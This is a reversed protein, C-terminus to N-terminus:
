EYRVLVMEGIQGEIAYGKTQKILFDRTILQFPRKIQGIDDQRRIIQVRDKNAYFIIAPLYTTDQVYLPLNIEKAMQGMRAENAVQKPLNFMEPWYARLSVIGIGFIVLLLGIQAVLNIQKPLKFRNLIEVGVMPILLSMPIMVPLLHWIQSQSSIFYPFGSLFLYGMIWKINKQKLLGLGLASSALLPLYWKHVASRLYLLTRTITEASVGSASGKRFGINFVNQILFPFGYVLSNYGYWPIIPLLFFILSRRVTIIGSKWYPRSAIVLLPLMVLSIASKSVMALGFFFWMWSLNRKTKAEILFYFTTAQTFLLLADLDATRSRLLFWRCSFLIIAAMLGVKANIMKKGILFVMMVTLAGFIAMPLRASFDSVGLALFSLAISYFGLPPHDWFSGGNYSLDLIHGKIVNRGIVAYWAEDWPALTSNSLNYLLVSFVFIFILFPFIWTLRKM